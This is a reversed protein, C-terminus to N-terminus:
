PLIEYTFHFAVTQAGTASSSWRILARDAASDGVVQAALIPVLFITGVGACDEAAGINSAIPLTINVSTATNAAATVTVNILGSVTVINGIRIYQAQLPTAASANVLASSVPTYTGSTFFTPDLDLTPNGSVGNGNTVTLRNTTGTITRGTFTDAATQTILGATNYAALSTLTADVPQAGLTTLMAGTTADDLVTLAADTIPKAVLNGTSSRAPFTNAPFTVQAVTDAGSGIALSNAAWNAAALATLTPDTDQKASTALGHWAQLNASLTYTLSGSGTIPGGSATLGTSNALNVSTVTGSGTGAGIDSRVQAPTREELTGDSAVRPYNGATFGTPNDAVVGAELMDGSVKQTM